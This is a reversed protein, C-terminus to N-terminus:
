RFRSVLGSRIVVHRLRLYEGDTSPALNRMGYNYVTGLTLGLDEDIAYELEAGAALGLDLRRDQPFTLAPGATLFARVGNAAWPLKVRGLATLTLHSV